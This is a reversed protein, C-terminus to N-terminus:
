SSKIKARKFVDKFESMSLPKCRKIADKEAQCILCDDFLYKSALSNILRTKNQKVSNNEKKKM